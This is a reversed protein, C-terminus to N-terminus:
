VWGLLRVPEPRQEAAEVAMGLAIVGDILASRSPKDLRWGRPGDKAISYSPL